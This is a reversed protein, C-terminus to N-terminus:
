RGRREEDGVGDHAEDEAKEAAVVDAVVSDEDEDRPAESEDHRDENM